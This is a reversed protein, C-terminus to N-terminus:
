KKTKETWDGLMRRHEQLVDEYEELAVLNKMEGPDIDMDILMERPEGGKYLNYKYRNSRVMRGRGNESIVFERWSGLSKGQTLPKVSHGQLGEPISIGAFDCFSPILDVSSSILHERDM